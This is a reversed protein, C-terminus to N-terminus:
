DHASLSHLPVWQHRWLCMRCRVLNPLQGWMSWLWWWWELRKGGAVIIVTRNCGWATSQVALWAGCWTQGGVGEKSGNWNAYQDLREVLTAMAVAKWEGRVFFLSTHWFATWLSLNLMWCLWGEVAWEGIPGAPAWCRATCSATPNRSQCVEPLLPWCYCMWCWWVSCLPGGVIHASGGGRWGASERSRLM